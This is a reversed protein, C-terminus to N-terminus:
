NTRESTTHLPKIRLTSKTKNCMITYVNEHMMRRENRSKILETIQNLTLIYCKIHHIHLSAVTRLLLLLSSRIHPTNTTALQHALHTLLRTIRIHAVLSNTTTDRRTATRTHLNRRTTNIAPSTATLHILTRTTAHTGKTTATTTRTTLLLINTSFTYLFIIILM